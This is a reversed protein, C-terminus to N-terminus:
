RKSMSVKSQAAPKAASEMRVGQGTVVDYAPGEPKGDFLNNPTNAGRCRALFEERQRKGNIQREDESTMDVKYQNLKNDLTKVSIDLARSTATKNGRYFRFATLIVQKEIAQLTVGPSWIIQSDM